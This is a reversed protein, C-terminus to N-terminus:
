FYIIIYFNFFLYIFLTINILTKNNEFKTLCVDFKKGFYYPNGTQAYKKEVKLLQQNRLLNESFLLKLVFRPVM